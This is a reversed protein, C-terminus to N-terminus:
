DYKPKLFWFDHLNIDLTITQYKEKILGYDTTGRVSYEYTINFNTNTYLKKANRWPLGIGVSLGYDSIQNTGILLYSNNYHAGFRYHMREFYRARARNSLPAPIIEAGFRYSGYKTFFQNTGNISAKSFDQMTYEGTVLIQDRYIYTLGFGYKAPLKFNNIENDVLNLTDILSMFDRNGISNKKFKINTKPDFTIGLIFQHKDNFTHFAQLGIKYYFDKAVLKNSITTGATPFSDSNIFITRSKDLSGFIYSANAGISIYKGIQFASGFYFENLGGNGLYDITAKEPKINVLSQFSYQMRSYPVIGTSFKWWRTVPFGLVIFEINMNRSKDSAISSSIESFRQAAGAEFIFSMTDQSTYSAPNLYNLQNAPRLGVSSGGMSRNYGFGTNIQDGILFASYPSNTYNQGFVAFPLALFCILIIKNIKYM